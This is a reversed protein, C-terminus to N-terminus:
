QDAPCKVVASMWALLMDDGFRGILRRRTAFLYSLLDPVGDIASFSTYLRSRRECEARQVPVTAALQSMHMRCRPRGSASRDLDDACPSGSGM